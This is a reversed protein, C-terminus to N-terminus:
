NPAWKMNKIDADIEAKWQPNERLVEDVQQASYFFSNMLEVNMLKLVVM